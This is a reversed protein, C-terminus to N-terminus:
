EKQDTCKFACVAFVAGAIKSYLWLSYKATLRPILYVLFACAFYRIGVPSAAAGM